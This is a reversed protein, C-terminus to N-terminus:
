VFVFGESKKPKKGTKTIFDHLSFQKQEARKEEPMFIEEAADSETDSNSFYDEDSSMALQRESQRARSNFVKGSPSEQRRWAMQQWYKESPHPVNIEYRIHATADPIIAEEEDRESDKRQKETLTTKQASFGKAQRSIVDGSEDVEHFAKSSAKLLNLRTSDLYVNEITSVKADTLDELLDVSRMAPIRAWRSQKNLSYQVNCNLGFPDAKQSSHQDSSSNKGDSVILKRVSGSKAFQKFDRQQRNKRGKSRKTDDKCDFEYCIDTEM